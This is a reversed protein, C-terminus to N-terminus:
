ENKDKETAEKFICIAIIEKDENFLIKTATSILYYNIKLKNEIEQNILDTLKETNSEKFMKVKTKTLPPM